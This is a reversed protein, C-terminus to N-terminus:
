ARYAKRAGNERDWDLADKKNMNGTVKVSIIASIGVLICLSAFILRDQAVSLSILGVSLGGIIAITLLLSLLGFINIGILKRLM